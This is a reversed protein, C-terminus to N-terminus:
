SSILPRQNDATVSLSASRESTIHLVLFIKKNGRVRKFRRSKFPSIVTHIYHFGLLPLLSQTCSCFTKLLHSHRSVLTKIMFSVRELTKEVIFNLTRRSGHLSAHSENRNTDTQNALMSIVCSYIRWWIRIFQFDGWPLQKDRLKQMKIYKAKNRTRTNHHCLNDNLLNQTSYKQSICLCEHKNSSCSIILLFSFEWVKSSFIRKLCSHSFVLSM